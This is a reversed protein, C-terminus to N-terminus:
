KVWVLTIGANGADLDPDGYQGVEKRLTQVAVNYLGYEEGSIIAQVKSRNRFLWNQVTSKTAGGKGGSGYGHVVKLIRHDKSNIVQRLARQLENEVDDPRLPPHAVDITLIPHSM